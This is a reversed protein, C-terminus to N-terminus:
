FILIGQKNQELLEVLRISLGANNIIVRDPNYKEIKGKTIEFLEDCHQSENAMFKENKMDGGDTFLTTISFETRSLHIVMTTNKNNTKIIEMKLDGETKKIGYFM